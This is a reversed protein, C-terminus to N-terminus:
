KKRKGVKRLHLVCKRCTAELEHLSDLLKEYDKNSLVVAVPESYRMVKYILGTKVEKTIKSIHTQLENINIYKIKEKAM